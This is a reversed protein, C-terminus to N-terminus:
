KACPVGSFTCAVGGSAPRCAERVDRAQRWSAYADGLDPTARVRARWNARAKTKALWELRAPEGRASLLQDSCTESRAPSALAAFAVIMVAAVVRNM